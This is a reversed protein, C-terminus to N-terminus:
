RPARATPCNRRAGRGGLYTLLPLSLRLLGPALMCLKGFLGDLAPRFREGGPRRLTEMVTAAIQEPRAPASVYNLVSGGGAMEDRLMTTDVAGPFISSVAIKRRRAELSLSLAFSRLGAKTAAYVASGALPMVAAMSNIFVVHGGCPISAMLRSTLLIPAVLNVSIQREIDDQRLADVTAPTIVGACHILVHVSKGAAVLKEAVSTIQATDTLDCPMHSVGDRVFAPPSRRSVVVVDYGEDTLRSAIVAGIGGSGGTVVALPRESTGDGRATAM